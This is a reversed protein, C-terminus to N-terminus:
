KYNEDCFYETQVKGLLMKEVDLYFKNFGYEEAVYHPIVIVNKGSEILAKIVHHPLDSSIVTGENLMGKELYKSIYSGGAGCFSAVSKVRSDDNGYYIIKDSSFNTKINKVFDKLSVDVSFSKGYGVGKTMEEIISIKEGGLGKALYYDIGSSACDLNLHMSIVNIDNKIAQLVCSTNANENSLNKLPTYIAPHHTVITDCNKMIAKNVSENSLDLSFLVRKVEDHSKILIGSNDYDGNLICMESIKIPAIKDLVNFLNKIQM